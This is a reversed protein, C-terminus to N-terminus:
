QVVIKYEESAQFFSTKDASIIYLKVTHEGKSVKALPINSRFGAKHFVPNKFRKKLYNPSKGIGVGFKQGDIDVFIAAPLNNAEKDIAWGTIVLREGSVKITNPSKSKKLKVDGITNVAYNAETKAPPLLRFKPFRVKGDKREGTATLNKNPKKKTKKVQEKKATSKNKANPAESSSSSCGILCVLLACNLLIYIINKM